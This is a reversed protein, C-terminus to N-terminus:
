VIALIIGILAGLILIATAIFGMIMGPGRTAPDAIYSKCYVIRGLLFFIGIAAASIAHVFYAFLCIAPIFLILQELTNQQVRFIREFNENGTIAPAKISFQGRAKGVMAMFFFYEILALVVVLAVYEM